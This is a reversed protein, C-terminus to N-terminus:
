SRTRESIHIIPRYNGSIIRYTANEIHLRIDTSSLFREVVYWFALGCTVSIISAAYCSWGQRHILYFLIPLQTLYIAFSARGILLIPKWSLAKRFIPIRASLVILFYAIHWLPNGHDNSGNVSQIICITLTLVTAFVTLCQYRIDNQALHAAYIGLLFAPLIGFDSVQLPTINYMLWLLVIVGGFAIRSRLFLAVFLPCLLYWRMEVGMTWFSTNHIPFQGNLFLIDRLIEQLQETTSPKYTISPLGLPTMAMVAFITLAAYYTPAIRSFRRVIFETYDIAASGSKQYKRLIPYSLCFGSVVFFLDVGRIGIIWYSPIHGSKSTSLYGHYFIVALVAIARLGDIYDLRSKEPM